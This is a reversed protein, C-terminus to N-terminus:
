SLFNLTPVVVVSAWRLDQVKGCLQLIWVLSGVSQSILPLCLKGDFLLALKLYKIYFVNNIVTENHQM